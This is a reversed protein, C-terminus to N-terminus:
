SSEEDSKDGGMDQTERKKQEDMGESMEGEPMTKSDDM